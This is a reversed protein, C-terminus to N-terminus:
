DPQRNYSVFSLFVIVSSYYVATYVPYRISKNMMERPYSLRYENCNWRCDCVRMHCNRVNNLSIYWATYLYYFILIISLYLNVIWLIIEMEMHINIGLSLRFSREHIHTHVDIKKLNLNNTELHPFQNIWEQQQLFATFM